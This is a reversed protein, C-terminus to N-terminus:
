LKNVAIYKWLAAAMLSQKIQNSNLLIKVEDVSLLHVSIFESEDLDQEGIKEVDEALYCYVINSHTSPNVSLVTLESWKGNGYGTEEMLERQASVLPSSDSEETFGACLEYDVSQLGHRYQKVFVLKKDKTVALVNIWDRYELVYYPYLTKGDPLQVEDKRVTLWKDKHLYESKLIKWRLNDDKM